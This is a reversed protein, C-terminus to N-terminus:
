IHQIHHHYGCQQPNLMLPYTVNLYLVFIGNETFIENEMRWIYVLLLYTIVLHSLDLVYKWIFKWYNFSGEGYTDHTYFFSFEKQLLLEHKANTITAKNRFVQSGFQQCWDTQLRVKSVLLTPTSGMPMRDTQLSTRSVIALNSFLEKAGTVKQEPIQGSFLQQM